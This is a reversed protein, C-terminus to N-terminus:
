SNLGLASLRLKEFAALSFTMWMTIMEFAYYYYLSAISLYLLSHETPIKDMQTELMQITSKACISM